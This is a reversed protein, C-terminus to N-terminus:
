KTIFFIIIVEDSSNFRCYDETILSSSSTSSHSTRMKNENTPSMYQWKYIHWKFYFRMTNNIFVLPCLTNKKRLEFFLYFLCIIAAHERTVGSTVWRRFALLLTTENTENQINERKKQQKRQRCAKVGGGKTKKKKRMDCM